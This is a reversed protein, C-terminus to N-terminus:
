QTSPESRVASQTHIPCSALRLVAEVLMKVGVVAPGEVLFGCEFNVDMSRRLMNASGVYAAIGDALVIKAHFTEDELSSSGYFAVTTVSQLLRQRLARSVGDLSGEERLILIRESAPTDSFLECAWEAGERDIFPVMITFREVAKRALHLFAHRTPTLTVYDSAIDSSLEQALRSPEPPLTVVLRATAPPAGTPLKPIM